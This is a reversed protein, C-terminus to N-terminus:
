GGLPLAAIERGAQLMLSRMQFFRPNVSKCHNALAVLEDESLGALVEVTADSLMVLDSVAMDLDKILFADVIEWGEIPAPPNEFFNVMEALTPQRATFTRGGIELTRSLGQMM